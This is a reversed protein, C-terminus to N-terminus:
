PYFIAICRSCRHAKTPQATAFKISQVGSSNVLIDSKQIKVWVVSLKTGVNRTLRDTGEQDRFIPGSLNDRFTPLFNGSSAAYYDLVACNEDVENAIKLGTKSYCYKGEATYIFAPFEVCTQARGRAPINAGSSAPLSGEGISLVASTTVCRRLAVKL